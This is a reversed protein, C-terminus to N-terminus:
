DPLYGGSQLRWLREYMGGERILDTHTGLEVLKGQDIVAIQDAMYVTSLRHAIIITTRNEMASRLAIQLKHETESDLASTSEDLILIPTDALFIRALAIRQREGGSLRGGREGVVTDYGDKMRAIFDHAQAKKCAAIIEARTAGPRAFRVNNAVTDNFLVTEQQVVGVAKRVDGVRLERIDTGDLLMRGASPDLFRNVLRVFTSKGSGSAGVLALSTGARVHISIDNVTPQKAGQYSVSVHDFELEGEVQRLGKANPADTIRNETFWEDAISAFTSRIESIRRMIDVLLFDFPALIYSVMGLFTVLVGVSLTGTQIFWLGSIVVAMRAAIRVVGNALELATWIWNLSEQRSTVVKMHNVHDTLVAKEGVFSKIPMVGQVAESLKKAAEDWADNLKDQNSDAYRYAILTLSSLLPVGVLSILAMRWDLLMGVILFVIFTIATPVVDTLTRASFTWSADWARDYRKALAGLSIRSFREPDWTLIRDFSRKTFDKLVQHAGKWSMIQSLESSLSGILSASAWLGVLPLMARFIDMTGGPVIGIVVDVIRGYIVPEAALALASVIILFLSVLYYGSTGAFSPGLIARFARWTLKKEKQEEM